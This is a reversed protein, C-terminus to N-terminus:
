AAESAAANERAQRTAASEEPSGVPWAFSEDPQKVMGVRVEPGVRQYYFADEEAQRKDPRDPPGERAAISSVVNGQRLICAIRGYSFDSM